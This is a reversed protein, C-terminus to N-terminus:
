VNKMTPTPRTSSTLPAPNKNCRAKLMADAQAYAYEAIEDVNPVGESFGSTAGHASADDVYGGYKILMAMMARSALEDRLVM